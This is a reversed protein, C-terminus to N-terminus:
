FKNNNIPNCWDRRWKNYENLADKKSMKFINEILSVSDEKNLGICKKQLFEELTMDHQM